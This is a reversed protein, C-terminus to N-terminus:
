AGIRGCCNSVDLIVLPKIRVDTLKKMNRELNCCTFASSIGIQEFFMPGNHCVLYGRIQVLPM